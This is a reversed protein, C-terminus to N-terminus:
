VRVVVYGLAFTNRAYSLLLGLCKSSKYKLHIFICDFYAIMNIMNILKNLVYMQSVKVYM